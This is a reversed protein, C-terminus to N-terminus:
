AGTVLRQKVQDPRLSPTRSLVLAAAGSTVAASFSTGSGKFYGDGIRATPVATDITSGPVRVSVVSRGPAVLDPKAVGSATPGSASFSALTDDGRSATTRDDSAGVTVVLPDDGPKAITGPTTGGNGAAAVVVIGSEWVREVALNLPDIRHDQDSDTGLSLNLVRIAYQEKFTVVWQLGALLKVLDTSGDRGAIKVSVLHAGPAVGTVAGGSAAGTGAILGAVFTGHGFHDVNDQEATFDEAHAVTGELDGVPNVGTDIVAVGVGRGTHGSGWVKSARVVDAYVASATASGEGYRGSVHVARNRVVSRVGSAARLHTIARPAVEVVFGDVLPLERTVRGGLHEVADVVSDESGPESSVIVSVPRVASAVPAVQSFAGAVLALVVFVGVTRRPRVAWTPRRVVIAPTM